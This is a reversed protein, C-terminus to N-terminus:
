KRQTLEEVSFLDEGGFGEELRQQSPSLVKDTVQYLGSPLNWKAGLAHRKPVSLNASLGQSTLPSCTFLLPHFIFASLLVTVRPHTHAQRLLEEVATLGVALSQPEAM